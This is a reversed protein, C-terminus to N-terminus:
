SYFLLEENMIEVEHDGNEERADFRAIMNQKVANRDQRAALGVGRKDPYM